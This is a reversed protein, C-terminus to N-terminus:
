GKLMRVLGFLGLVGMGIVSSAVLWVMLGSGRRHRVATVPTVYFGSHLSYGTTSPAFESPREDKPELDWDYVQTDKFDRRPSKNM